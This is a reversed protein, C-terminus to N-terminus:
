DGKRFFGLIQQRYVYVLAGLGLIPLAYIMYLTMTLFWNLMNVFANEYQPVQVRSPQSPSALNVQVKAWKVKDAMNFQAIRANDQNDESAALANERDVFNKKSPSGSLHKARRRSRLKERSIVVQKAFNNGTHDITQIQESKLRGVHDLNKLFKYLHQSQVYFTSNVFQRQDLLTRSSKVFGYKDILQMMRSRANDFDKTEFDVNVQYELLRRPVNARKPFIIRPRFTFTQERGNQTIRIKGQAFFQGTKDADAVTTVDRVRRNFENSQNNRGKASEAPYARDKYGPPINPETGAPGDPTFGNGVFGESTKRFPSNTGLRMTETRDIGDRGTREGAANFNQTISMEDLSGEKQLGPLYVFSVGVAMFTMAAVATLTRKGRKSNVFQLIRGKKKGNADAELEQALKESVQEIFVESPFKEFFKLNEQQIFELQKQLEIDQEVQQRIALMEKESLEALAYRELQWIEVKKKKGPM